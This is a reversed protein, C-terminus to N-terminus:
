TCFKLEDKHPIFYIYNSKQGNISKVRYSCIIKDYIISGFFIPKMFLFWYKKDINIKMKNSGIDLEKTPM